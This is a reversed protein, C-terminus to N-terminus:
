RIVRRASAERVKNTASAHTLGGACGTMQRVTAAGGTSFAGVTGTGSVVASSGSYANMVFGRHYLRVTGTEVISVVVPVGPTWTAM